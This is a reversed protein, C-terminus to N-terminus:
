LSACEGVNRKRGRYQHIHPRHIESVLFVNAPSLGVISLVISITPLLLVRGQSVYKSSASLQGHPSTSSYANPYKSWPAYAATSGHVSTSRWAPNGVAADCTLCTQFCM